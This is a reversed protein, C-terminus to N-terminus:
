LRSKQREEKQKEFVYHRLIQAQTETVHQFECGYYYTTKEKTTRVIKAVLDLSVDDLNLTLILGHEKPLNLQSSFFLGSASVNLAHLLIPKPLPVKGKGNVDLTHVFVDTDVEVRVEGRKQNTSIHTVDIVVLREPFSAFVKGSFIIEGQMPDYVRLTVKEEYLFPKKRTTEELLIHMTDIQQDSIKGSVVNDKGEISVTLGNMNECGKTRLSDDEIENGQISGKKSYLTLM